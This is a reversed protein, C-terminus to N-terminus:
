PKDMRGSSLCIINNFRIKKTKFMMKSRQENIITVPQYNAKLIMEKIM